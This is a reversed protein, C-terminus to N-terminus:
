CSDEWGVADQEDGASRSRNAARLGTREDMESGIGADDAAADLLGLGRGLLNCLDPAAGTHDADAIDIHPVYTMAYLAGNQPRKKM